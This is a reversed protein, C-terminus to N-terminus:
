PSIVRTTICLSWSISPAALRKCSFLTARTLAAARWEKSKLQASPPRSSAIMKLASYATSEPMHISRWLSAFSQDLRRPAAFDVHHQRPPQIAPAARNGIQQRCELFQLMQSDAENRQGLRQIQSRWGPAGHGTQKGDEGLEFSLNQAFSGANPQGLGPLAALTQAQREGGTDM